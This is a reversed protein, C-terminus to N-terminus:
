QRRDSSSIIYLFYEAATFGVTIWPIIEPYFLGSSIIVSILVADSQPTLTVSYNDIKYTGTDAL